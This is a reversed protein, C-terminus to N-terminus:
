RPAQWMMDVTTVRFGCKEFLARAAENPAATELRVQKVGLEVFQEVALMVLQRGVGENRYAPEIWLDHIFGYHGVKYIPIEREITAALFGVITGEREAVLIVSQKDRTRELLWSRYMEGFEDVRAYKDPEWVEHLAAIKDVMPVVTEIDEETAHRIIM